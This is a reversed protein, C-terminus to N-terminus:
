PHHNLAAGLLRAALEVIPLVREYPMRTPGIVAVVGLVQGDATYPSTVVSCQELPDCGSEAGIFVQTGEGVLCQDLLHLIDRKRSFAEFLRRLEEHGEIDLCGLLNEEGALVYDDPAPPTEFAVTGVAMLASDMSQRDEQMEWLLQARIAELTQGAFTENLYGAARDLEATTYARETHIVRNRVERENVVLIALVRRDSLSLFAVQRLVLADQRPVMVLGAFHTSGSLLASTSAVLERISQDPGLYNHWHLLEKGQPPRLTLLHDVFYRYGLVTPVRGASTHRSALLGMEELDAMVNRITAPSLDSEMERALIRSGVAKGERIYREVMVKLLRNARDNLVIEAVTPFCSSRSFQAIQSHRM